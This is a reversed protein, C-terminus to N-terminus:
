FILSFVVIRINREQHCQNDDITPSFIAIRTDKGRSEYGLTTRIEKLDEMSM